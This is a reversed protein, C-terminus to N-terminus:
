FFLFIQFLYYVALGKWAIGSIKFYKSFFYFLKFRITLLFIGLYTLYAMGKIMNVFKTVLELKADITLGNRM